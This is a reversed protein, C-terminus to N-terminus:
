DSWSEIEIATKGAYYITLPFILKPINVLIDKPLNDTFQIQNIFICISWLVLSVGIFNNAKYTNKEDIISIGTLIATYILLMIFAGNVIIFCIFIGYISAANQLLNENPAHILITLSLLITMKLALSADKFVGKIIDKIFDIM